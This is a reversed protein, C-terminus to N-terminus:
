KKSVSPYGHDGVFIRVASSWAKGSSCHPISTHHLFCTNECCCLHWSLEVILVRGRSKYDCNSVCHVWRMQKHKLKYKPAFVVEKLRVNM